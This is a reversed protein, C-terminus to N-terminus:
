VGKSVRKSSLSGNTVLGESNTPLLVIYHSTPIVSGM